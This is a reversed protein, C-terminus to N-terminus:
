NHANPDLQPTAYKGKSGHLQLSRKAQIANKCDADQNDEAQSRCESVKANREAEHSKYWDVDHTPKCGTLCVSLLLISIASSKINM